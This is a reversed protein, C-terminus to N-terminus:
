AFHQRRRRLATGDHDTSATASISDHDIGIFIASEEIRNSGGQLAGSFGRLTGAQIAHAHCLDVGLNSCDPALPSALM